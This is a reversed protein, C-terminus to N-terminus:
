KRNGDANPPGPGFHVGGAERLGKPQDMHSNGAPGPQGHSSRYFVEMTIEYHEGTDENQPSEEM